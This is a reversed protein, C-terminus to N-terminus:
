QTENAAHLPKASASRGGSLQEFTQGVRKGNTQIQRYPRKTNGLFHHAALRMMETNNGDHNFVFNQQFTSTKM